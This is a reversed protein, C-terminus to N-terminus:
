DDHASRWIEYEQEADGRLPFYDMTSAGHGIRDLVFEEEIEMAMSAQAIEEVIHAPIVVVGEGDGVLIDGPLVTAGGCAVPVQADVSVHRRSLTAANSTQHYVPLGIRRIAPTDRLAGDTIVGEGGRMKVRLAYIDGITGAHPEERADIVLVEGPEISEITDRQVDGTLDHLDPRAPLYRLTRAVGLLRRSGDLPRLGNLFCNQYGRMQLQSTITATPVKRLIGALRASLPTCSKHRINM